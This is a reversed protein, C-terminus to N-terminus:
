EMLLLISRFYAGLLLHCMDTIQSGHNTRACLAPNTGTALGRLTESVCQASALARVRALAIGRPPRALWTPHPGFSCHMQMHAATTAWGVRSEDRAAGRARGHIPSCVLRVRGGGSSLSGMTRRRHCAFWRYMGRKGRSAFAEWSAARARGMMRAVGLRGIFPRAAMAPLGAGRRSRGAEM